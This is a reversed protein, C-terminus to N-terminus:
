DTFREWPRRRGTDDDRGSRPDVDPSLDDDSGDLEDEDGIARDIADSVFGGRSRMEDVARDAGGDAGKDVPDGDSDDVSNDVSDTAEQAWASSRRDQSGAWESDADAADTGHDVSVEIVEPVAEDADAALNPGDYRHESTFGGSEAGGDDAPEDVAAEDREGADESQAPGGWFRHRRPGPGDDANATDARDDPGTDLEDDDSGVDPVDGDDLQAGDRLFADDEGHDLASDTARETRGGPVAVLGPRGSQPEPSPQLNDLTDDVDNAVPALRRETDVAIDGLRDQVDAVIQRLRGLEDILADREESQESTLSTAESRADSVIREAERKAEDTIDAATKEALLLTRRMADETQRNESLQSELTGVQFSMEELRQEYERISLVVEDLFEDVEDEAYGRLAVRFTKQQVDIPTLPM